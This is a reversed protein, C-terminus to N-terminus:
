STGDDIVARHFRTQLTLLRKANAKCDDKPSQGRM